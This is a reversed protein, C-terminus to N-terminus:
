TVSKIKNNSQAKRHSSRKKHNNKKDLNKKRNCKEKAIAEDIDLHPFNAIGTTYGLERQL